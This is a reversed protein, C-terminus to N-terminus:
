DEEPINGSMFVVPYPDSNKNYERLSLIMQPGSMEPMIVDTIICAYPTKKSISEVAAYYGHRGDECAAVDYGFSHLLSAMFKRVKEEDEVLLAKGKNTEKM